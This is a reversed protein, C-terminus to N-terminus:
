ITDILDDNLVNFNINSKKIVKEKIDKVEEAKVVEKIDNEKNKSMEIAIPSLKTKKSVFDEKIKAKRDKREEELELRRLIEADAKEKKKREENDKKILNKKTIEDRAMQALRNIEDKDETISKYKDIYNKWASEFNGLERRYYATRPPLFYGMQADKKTELIMVEGPNLRSLRSIHAKTKLRGDKRPEECIEERDGQSPLNAVILLDEQGEVIGRTQKPSQTDLLPFLGSRGTRIHGTLAARFKKVNDEAVSMDTASMFDGAERMTAITKKHIKNDDVLKHITELFYNVIFLHYKEPVYKLYLVTISIKDKIEERLDIVYESNNSSLLHEKLLPLLFSKSLISNNEKVREAILIENDKDKTKSQLEELEYKSGEPIKGLVVEADILKIKNFPITFIRSNIYPPDSPLKNPTMSKFYPYLINVKYQKKWSQTFRRDGYLKRWIAADDEFMNPFCWFPGEHRRGGWLDIIKYGCADHFYESINLLDCTKGSGTRGYIYIPGNLVKPLTIPQLYKTNSKIM